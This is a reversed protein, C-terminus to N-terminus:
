IVDFSNPQIEVFNLDVCKFRVNLGEARTRALASNFLGPNLDVAILEHPKKLRRAVQLEIGGYGCGLSLIRPRDYRNAQVAVEDWFEAWFVRQKVYGHNFSWAKSGHVGGEFLDDTTEIAFYDEIEEGGLRDDEKEKTLDVSGDTSSSIFDVDVGAMATVRG